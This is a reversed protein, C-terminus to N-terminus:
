TVIFHLINLTKSMCILSFSGHSIRIGLALNFWLLYNGQNKTPVLRVDM